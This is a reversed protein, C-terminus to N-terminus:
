SVLGLAKAAQQVAVFRDHSGGADPHASRAAMRVARKTDAAVEEPSLGSERAIIEEPRGPGGATLAAFGRYQEGHRVIGYRDVKRLAEMGLAIMRVNTQWHDGRDTAFSLYGAPHRSTPVDFTLVVGPHSPARADARLGGDRRHASSPHLTQLVVASADLMWLERDLLDLTSPYSARFTYRSARDGEPTSAFPWVGLPRHRIEIM